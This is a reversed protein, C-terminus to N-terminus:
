KQPRRQIRELLETDTRHQPIWLQICSKLHARALTSHLSLILTMSQERSTLLLVSMILFLMMLDMIM